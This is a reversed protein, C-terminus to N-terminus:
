YWIFYNISVTFMTLKKKQFKKREQIKLNRISHKGYM